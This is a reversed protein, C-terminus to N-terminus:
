LYVLHNIDIVKSEITISLNKIYKYKDQEIIDQTNKEQKLKWLNLIRINLEDKKIFSIYKIIHNFIFQHYM